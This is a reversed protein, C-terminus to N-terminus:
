SVFYDMLKKNFNILKIKFLIFYIFLQYKLIYEHYRM